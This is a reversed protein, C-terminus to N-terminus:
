TGPTGLDIAKQILDDTVNGPAGAPNIDKAM